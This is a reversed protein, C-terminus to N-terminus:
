HQEAVALYKHNTIMQWYSEIEQWEFEVLTPTYLPFQDRYDGRLHLPHLVAQTCQEDFAASLMRLYGASQWLWTTKDLPKNVSYYTSKIEHLIPPRGDVPFEIGDPSGLIGDLELEFPHAIVRPLHRFLYEEWAYGVTCRTLPPCSGFHTGPTSHRVALQELTEGTEDFLGLKIALPRLIGSLHIGSSRGSDTIVPFNYATTPSTRM